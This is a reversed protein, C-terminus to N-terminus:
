AARKGRCTNCQPQNRVIGNPMKRLGIQALTKLRKCKTCRIRVPKGGSLLVIKM